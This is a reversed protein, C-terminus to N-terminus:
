SMAQKNGIERLLMLEIRRSANKSFIKPLNGRKISGIFEQVHKTM